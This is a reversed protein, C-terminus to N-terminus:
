APFAYVANKVSITYTFRKWLRTDSTARNVNANFAGAATRTCTPRTPQLQATGTAASGKIQPTAVVLCIEVASVGPWGVADAAVQAATLYQTKTGGASVVAASGAQAVQYRVVFEEVGRAIPQPTSNGSGACYLESTGDGTSTQVFFRNIVVGSTVSAPIPQQACDRGEGTAANSAKLSNTSGSNTSSPIAQYALQLSHRTTSTTASCGLSLPPSTTALANPTSNMTGNCGFVPFLGGVIRQLPTVPTSVATNRVFTNQFQPDDTRFIASAYTNGAPADLFDVYGAQSINSRILSSVMKMPDNVENYDERQRQIATSTQYVTGIATMIVLGITISVLIEIITFGAQYNSIYRKM